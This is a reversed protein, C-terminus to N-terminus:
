APNALMLNYLQRAYKLQTTYSQVKEQWSELEASAAVIKEIADHYGQDDEKILAIEAEKTRKEMEAQADVVKGEAKLLDDELDEVLNKQDKTEDKTYKAAAEPPIYTRDYLELFGKVDVFNRSISRTCRDCYIFVDEFPNERHYVDSSKGYHCNHHIIAFSYLELLDEVEKTFGELGTQDTLNRVVADTGEMSDVKVMCSLMIAPM